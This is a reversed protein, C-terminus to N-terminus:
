KEEKQEAYLHLCASLDKVKGILCGAFMTLLGDRSPITSLKNIMEIGTVEGDVIGAKIELAKHSKSFDTLVKIPEVLNESIAIANPGKLSDGMDFKLSDMARKTLTNKYIKLETGTERLKTRLENVESVTLGRYDFLIVSTADKIKESIESVVKQKKKIIKENAM